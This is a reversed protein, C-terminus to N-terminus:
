ENDARLQAVLERLEQMEEEMSTMVVSVGFVSGSSLFVVQGFPDFVCAATKSQPFFGFILDCGIDFCM